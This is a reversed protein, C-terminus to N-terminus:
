LPVLKSIATFLIATKTDRTELQQFLEEYRSLQPAHLEKQQNIFEGTSRERPAGTKFDIIWRVGNEDILTRDIAYTKIKGSQTQSIKFESRGTKNSEDFIWSLKKSRICNNVATYIFAISERM